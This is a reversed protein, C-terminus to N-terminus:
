DNTQESYHLNVQIKAGKKSRKIIQELCADTGQHNLKTPNKLFQSSTSSTAPSPTPIREIGSMFIIILKSKKTFIYDENRM